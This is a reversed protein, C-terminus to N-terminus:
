NSAKRAISPWTFSHRLALIERRAHRRLASISVNSLIGISQPNPLNQPEIDGNAQSLLYTKDQCARDVIVSLERHLEQSSIRGQSEIVILRSMILELLDLLAQSCREQQKLKHVWEIVGQRVCVIDKSITYFCDNNIGSQTTNGRCNSFEDIAQYGLILWTIFELYVCGLCWMDYARSVFDGIMPDPPSYTPSPTVDSSPVKSRSEFRHFRALGFDAIQLVGMPDEYNPRQKFYLVNKPKIDGHLGYRAGHSSTNVIGPFDCPVRFNHIESLGSALGVMQRLSWLVIQETFEPIKGREWYECL